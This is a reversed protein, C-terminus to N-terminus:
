QLNLLFVDPVVRPGWVIALTPKDSSYPQLFLSM